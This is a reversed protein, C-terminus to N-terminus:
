GKCGLKTKESKIKGSKLKFNTVAKSLQLEILSYFSHKIFNMYETANIPLDESRKRKMTSNPLYNTFKM